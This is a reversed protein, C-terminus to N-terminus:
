GCSFPESGAAIHGECFFGRPRGFPLLFELGLFCFSLAASPAASAPRGFKEGRGPSQSTISRVHEAGRSSVRQSPGRCTWAGFWAGGGRCRALAIARGGGRSLLEGARGDCGGAGDM